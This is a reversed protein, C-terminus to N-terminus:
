APPINQNLSFVNEPDLKRKLARLREFKEPGFAARVRDPPEDQQMYNVYGGGAHSYPELVTATERAWAIEAADDGPLEWVAQASVNFRASRFQVAMSDLPVRSAAGHISEVLLSGPVRGLAAFREVLQDILEDPLSDVFHGKWYHRSRGFPPDFVSQLDLYGIRGVEDRVVGPAERLRRLGDPEDTGTSCVAVQLVPEGNEDGTLQAQCTLHDPASGMTEAYRRLVDRAAEFRYTIVGGVLTSLPHLGFTFTTVVGFNGGGGRLGWFLEADTEADAWLIRGDATVVEAAVLNDCTLGFRGLLHGIGGGLTLGGVGTTGVVGGPTVLGHAQAAVDFQKWTTGGGARAIRAEADVEVAHLPALDVVLGGDCVAHGAPNHGGGRVAVTLANARAFELATAVDAGTRCRVVVAPRRDVLANFTLRAADYAADTPALVDGRISRRLERISALM